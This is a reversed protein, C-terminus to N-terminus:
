HLRSLGLAAGLSSRRSGNGGFKRLGAKENGAITEGLFSENQM